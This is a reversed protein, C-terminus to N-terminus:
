IEPIVPGTTSVNQMFRSPTQMLRRIPHIRVRASAMHIRRIYHGPMTEAVVPDIINLSSTDPSVTALVNAHLQSVLVSTVTVDWNM